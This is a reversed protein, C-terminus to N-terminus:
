EGKTDVEYVDKIDPNDVTYGRSVAVFSYSSDNSNFHIFGKHFYAGFYEDDTTKYWVECDVLQALTKKTRIFM